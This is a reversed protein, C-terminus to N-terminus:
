DLRNLHSHAVWPFCGLPHVVNSGTTARCVFRSTSFKCSLTPVHRSKAQWCVISTGLVLTDQLDCVRALCWAFHPLDPNHLRACRVTDACRSQARRHVKDMDCSTRKNCFVSSERTTGATASAGALYATSTGRAEGFAILPLSDHHIPFEDEAHM